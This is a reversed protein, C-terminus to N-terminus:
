KRPQGPTKIGQEQLRNHCIGAPNKVGDEAQELREICKTMPHKETKAVTEYFDGEGKGPVKAIKSRIRDFPIGAYREM